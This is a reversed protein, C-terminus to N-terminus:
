RNRATWIPVAELSEVAEDTMPILECVGLVTVKPVTCPFRCEDPRDTGRTALESLTAAGSWYWARRADALTVEAGTRAVLRGFWVGSEASRIMIKPM